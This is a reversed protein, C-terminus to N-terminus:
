FEAKICHAFLIRSIKNGVKQEHYTQGSVMNIQYWSEYRTPADRMVSYHYVNEDEISLGDPGKASEYFKSPTRKFTEKAGFVDGVTISSRDPDNFSITIRFEPPFDHSVTEDNNSRENQVICEMPPPVKACGVLSLLLACGVLPTRM